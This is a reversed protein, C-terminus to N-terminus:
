LKHEMILEARRFNKFKEYMRPTCHSKSTYKTHFGKHCENCICVGNEPIYMLSPHTSKDYLHHATVYKIGNRFDKIKSTGDFNCIDCKHKYETKVIEAWTKLRDEDKVKNPKEAEITKLKYLELDKAKLESKLLNLQKRSLLMKDSKLEDQLNKIKEYCKSIVENMNNIILNNEKTSSYGLKYFINKIIKHM